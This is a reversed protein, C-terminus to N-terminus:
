HFETACLRSNQTSQLVQRIEGSGVPESENRLRELFMWSSCGLLGLVWQPNNELRDRDRLSIRKEDSQYDLYSLPPLSDECLIEGSVQTIYEETMGPVLTNQSQSNSANKQKKWSVAALERKNKLTAM